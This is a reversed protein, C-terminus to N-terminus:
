LVRVAEVVVLRRREGRDVLGAFELPDAGAPAVLVLEAQRALPDIDGVDVRRLRVGEGEDRVRVLEEALPVREVDVVVGDIGCVQRREREVRRVRGDVIRVAIQHALDAAGEVVVPIGAVRAADLDGRRAAAENGIRAIAALDPRLAIAAERRGPM